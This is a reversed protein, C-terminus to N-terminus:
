IDAMMANFATMKVVEDQRLADRRAKAIPVLVEQADTALVEMTEAIFQDLPMARPDSEGNLLPTQVYPPAIELVEISTDRLTYRQSMVFSHLAAKTACYVSVAALPLYGLMSSVHVITARDLTRFHPILASSLRIPGLLNTAVTATLLEDDIPGDGTELRQIGASNILVNLAPHDAILAAVAAAINQADAIDLEIWAMGPNAASVEALLSGRRGAIIVRNDRAHLAEALGRGIGTGGGTVLITNGSLQM